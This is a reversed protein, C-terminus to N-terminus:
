LSGRPSMGQSFDSDKVFFFFYKCLLSCTDSPIEENFITIYDWFKRKSVCERHKNMKGKEHCNEKREVKTKTDNKRNKYWHTFSEMEKKRDTKIRKEDKKKREALNNNAKM